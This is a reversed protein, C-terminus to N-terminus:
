TLESRDLKEGFLRAMFAVATVAREYQMRMPGLIGVQGQVQEHWAYPASILALHQGATQGALGIQVHVPEPTDITGTLLAVLRKKEEIAELLDRLQEQTALEPSAAIQAAGGVYVQPTAADDLVEPACLELAARALRDYKEREQALRQALDGRIDQLTRGQYNSNLFNAIRDLEAQAFFHELRVAKDRTIGGRSVLVVLLRGDPLLLFRIHELVTRSLPPTVVIGVGHSVAALVQSAREMWEEPTSAASLERDMLAKDQPELTARQAIDQVFFRFAAATPIRGASTHPQYLFGEQELEAMINRITAPSLPSRHRQAV